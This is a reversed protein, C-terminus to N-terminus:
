PSGPRELVSAVLEDDAALAPDLDDLVRRVAEALPGAALAVLEDARPDNVPAGAGRLHCIWAALVRVAGEPMRGAAREARLVPLIRIPLKQSGDAAIQALLHRMRPNAFRELLATATARSGRRAADLHARRRRGGSSSGRRPLDRRGVAEAVTEHGRASGAYALLSHAGNLLWLKRQEFPTIDDAFTAGADEWRPRGGPFRAASCGSASRSPSWRAATTARHRSPRERRTPARRSGTSWRRSPRSPRRRALRAPGPRGPGRPRARRRAVVAGNDPLNDCPVLTLPGADARRRAALGALPAGAGHARARGSRGAARRSRGVEASADLRRRRRAPLRGRHGHDHGGRVDPSASTGRALRRPRAAPHARALSSIVDLRDGDGARTVLTYLGDQATLADALEASRGTFAAIGWGDGPATPTGPRTPASSTAWGSTCSGCRRRRRRARSLRDCSSCRADPPRHRPRRDDRAGRGRRAPARRGARGALRRRPPPVHRPPGPDLLVRPHRRHLGVHALLRRDRHGRARFRRMAEPADLFWWPAGVYLSPYFGALPALERSFVTEDLTFLVLHFGPHTGYRELLPRLADTFEVAIPIDHAPTPASASRRDARPPRPARGPAADDGARGRVVDPGDGAAHAPAARVAEAATADGALAARYIRDAEAPELPDTRVDEHSHDASTAGHAIFYRRREEMAAVFGAYDGTDVGSVEGLRAM